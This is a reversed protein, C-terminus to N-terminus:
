LGGITLLSLDAASDGGEGCRLSSLANGAGGEGEPFHLLHM